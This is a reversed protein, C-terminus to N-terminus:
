HRRVVHEGKMCKFFDWQVNNFEDFSFQRNNTICYPDRIYFGNEDVDYILVIHGSDSTEMDGFAGHCSAFAIWDNNVMEAIMGVDLIEETKQIKTEAGWSRYIFDVTKNIDNVGDSLTAGSSLNALEDPTCTTGTLIQVAMAGCCLGCGTDSITGVGYPVNAWQSDWQMYLPVYYRTNAKANIMESYTVANTGAKDPSIAHVKTAFYESYEQEVKQQNVILGLVFSCACLSLCLLVAIAIDSARFKNKPEDPELKYGYIPEPEDLPIRPFIDTDNSNGMKVVWMCIRTGMRGAQM